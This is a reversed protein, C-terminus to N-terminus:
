RPACSVSSDIGRHLRMAWRAYRMYLPAQYQQQYQEAHKCKQRVCKALSLAMYKWVQRNPAAPELLRLCRVVIPYAVDLLRILL